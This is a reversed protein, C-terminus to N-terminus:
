SAGGRPDEPAVVRAPMWCTILLVAGVAGAGAWGALLGAALLVVGLLFMATGLRAAWRTARSEVPGSLERALAPDSAVLQEGLAVLARRERRSLRAM